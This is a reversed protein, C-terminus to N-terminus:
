FKHKRAEARIASYSDKATKLQAPTVAHDSYRAAIYVERMAEAPAEPCWHAQAASRTIQQSTTSPELAIGRVACLQMFKRYLARAQERPSRRLLPGRPRRPAAGLAERHESATAGSPPTRSGLLKRLLYIAAFVAALILVAILIKRVLDGGALHTYEGIWDTVSASADAEVPVDEGETTRWQILYFLPSIVLAIVYALGLLIPSLVYQYVAGLASRLASLVAPTSLLLGLAPAALVTLTCYLRFRPRQMVEISQRLLQLLLMGGLLFMLAFPLCFGELTPRDLALCILLPVPLLRGCAIFRTRFAFKDTYFLGKVCSYAVYLAPPLLLVADVPQYVFFLCLAMLGLPAYRLLRAKADKLWFAPLCCAAMILLPVVPVHSLGFIRGIIVALSFYVSLDTLM